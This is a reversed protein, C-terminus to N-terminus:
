FENKDKDRDDHLVQNYDSRSEGYTYMLINLVKMVM